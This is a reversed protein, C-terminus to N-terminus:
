HNVAWTDTSLPHIGSRQLQRRARASGTKMWIEYTRLLDTNSKLGSMESIETLVDVLTAFQRGLEAFLQDRSFRSGGRRLCEYLSSYAAEGMGIYYDM